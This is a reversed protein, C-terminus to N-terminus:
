STFARRCAVLGLVEGAKGEKVFTGDVAYVKVVRDPDAATVGDIGTGTNNFTGTITVPDGNMLYANDVTM